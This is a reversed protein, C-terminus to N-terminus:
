VVRPPKEPPTVTIDSYTFPSVFYDIDRVSVSLGSDGAFLLFPEFVFRLPMTSSIPSTAAAYCLDSGVDVAHSHCAMGEASHDCACSDAACGCEAVGTDTSPMSITFPQQHAVFLGLVVGVIIKRFPM